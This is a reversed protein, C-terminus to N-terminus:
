PFQTAVHGNLLEIDPFSTDFQRPLHGPCGVSIKHIVQRVAADATHPLVGHHPVALKYPPRHPDCGHLYSHDTIHPTALISM